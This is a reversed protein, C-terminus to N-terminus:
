SRWRGRGPYLHKGHQGFASRRYEGSASISKIYIGDLDSTLIPKDNAGTPTYTFRLPGVFDLTDTQAASPVVFSLALILSLILKKM